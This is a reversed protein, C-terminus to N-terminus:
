KNLAIYQERSIKRISQINGKIGLSLIKERTIEHDIPIFRFLIVLTKQALIEVLDSYTYVTRKAVIPFVEEINDSIFADEVVGMCQISKRDNSRYFLIIDGKKVSKTNSHCLYAKKITNGQSSYLNQDDEFLSGKMDGLDPFLDEHYQPQIPIIFRQVTDNDQFFPYYRVLSTLSDLTTSALKMPKIYVDDKQYKGLFSFGYEECLAVLSQQEKGFTHLYTWDVDNKVCYDFVIFLLREGLKKGRAVTDVKLTCIKLIKGKVVDGNDTIKVNNELKYICIAALNGKDDQICWCKRQQEACSQYWEDFGDYAHRLSDFFIQKKDIQYLFREKVGSYSYDITKNSYRKFFLLVQELRFVKDQIGIISAKKHIGEDNTVLIHVAGRFLAFLISNDVKDNDNSEKLGLSEREENSLIPPNVIMSYQNFRSLVITKREFDKDRNIDYIQSPHVYLCHMQESALKRLEAFSSDLIRSTDELPIIINTDLLINM